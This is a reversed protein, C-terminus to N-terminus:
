LVVSSSGNVLSGEKEQKDVLTPVPTKGDVPHVPTPRRPSGETDPPRGLSVSTHAEDVDGEQDRGDIVDLRLRLSARGM